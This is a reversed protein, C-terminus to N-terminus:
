CILVSWVHIDNRVQITRTPCLVCKGGPLGQVKGSSNKEPCLKEVADLKTLLGAAVDM